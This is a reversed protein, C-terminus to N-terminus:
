RRTEHPGNHRGGGDASLDLRHEGADSVVKKAHAVLTELKKDVVQEVQKADDVGDTFLKAIQRRLKQSSSPSLVLVASGAVAAGAAFWMLPSLAGKQRQLGVRDLLNDAGGMEFVRLGNVLRLVQTGFELFSGKAHAATRTATEKIQDTAHGASDTISNM